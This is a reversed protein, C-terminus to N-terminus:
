HSTLSTGQVLATPQPGCSWEVECCGPEAQGHPADPLWRLCMSKQVRAGAQPSAAAVKEDPCWSETGLFNGTIGHPQFASTFAIFDPTHKSTPHIHCALMYTLSVQHRSSVKSWTGLYMAWRSPKRRAEEAFDCAEPIRFHQKCNVQPPPFSPIFSSFSVAPYRRYFHGEAQKEFLFLVSEETYRLLTM